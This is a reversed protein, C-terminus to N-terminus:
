RVGGVTLPTQMTLLYTALALGTYFAPDAFASEVAALYDDDADELLVIADALNRDISSTAARSAAIDRDASERIISHRTTGCNAGHEGRLYQEILAPMQRWAEVFEAPLRDINPAAFRAVMAAMPPIQVAPQVPTKRGSM